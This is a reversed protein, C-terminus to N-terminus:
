VAFRVAQRALLLWQGNTKKWTTMIKLSVNGPKGANNTAAILTHRVIAVDQVVKITQDSLTISTFESQRSALEGIFEARTQVMGNSHGYSLEEMSLEGLAAIDAPHSMAQRLKEVAVAIEKESNEPGGATDPAVMMPSLVPSILLMWKKFM